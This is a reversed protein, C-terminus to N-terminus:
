GVYEVGVFLLILLLDVGIDLLDFYFILVYNDYCCYDNGSLVMDVIVEVECSVDLFFNFEQVCVIDGMLVYELVMLNYMCEMVNGLVDIIILIIVIDGIFVFIGVLFFSLIYDFCNDYEYVLIILYMVIECEGLVLQIVLDVFCIIEFFQIDNVMVVFGCIFINGVVDIFMYEVEIEGVQFFYINMMNEVFILFVVDEEVIGDEFIIMM